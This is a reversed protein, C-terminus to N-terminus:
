QKPEWRYTARLTTISSTFPRRREVSELYWKGVRPGCDFSVDLPICDCNDMGDVAILDGRDLGQEFVERELNKRVYDEALSLATEAIPIMGIM